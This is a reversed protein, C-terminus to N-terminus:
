NIGTHQRHWEYLCIALAHSVNMSGNRGFMPIKVAAQCKNLINDPIGHRESGVIFSCAKPLSTSFLNEAKSTLELAILSPLTQYDSHFQQHSWFDTTIRQCTNRSTRIVTKNNKFAGPKNDIFIIKEAAAADALRYLSGINAPTQLDVAIITPGDPTIIEQQQQYLTESDLAIGAQNDTM